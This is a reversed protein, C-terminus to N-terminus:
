FYYYNLKFIKLNYKKKDFIKLERNLFTGSFLFLPTTCASSITLAANISPSAAAIFSAFSSACNAILVVTLCCILFRIADNNLNAM